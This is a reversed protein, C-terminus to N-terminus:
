RAELRYLVESSTVLLQEGDASFLIQKPFGIDSSLHVSMTQEWNDTDWFRVWGNSGVSALRAETPHYTSRVDSGGQLLEIPAAEWDATNWVRLYGDNSGTILKEGDDSFLLSVVYSRHGELVALPEGSELDWIRVLQLNHDSAALWRKQRDITAVYGRDELREYDGLREATRADFISVTGQPTYGWIVTGDLCAQCVLFGDENPLTLARGDAFSIGEGDETGTRGLFLSSALALGGANAAAGPGRQAAADIVPERLEEGSSTRLFRVEHEPSATCILDDPEGMAIWKVDEIPYRLNGRRARQLDWVRVSCDHSGSIMYEGAPSIGLSRVLDTHGLLEAHLSRTAVEWIPISKDRSATLLQRGGSTFKM